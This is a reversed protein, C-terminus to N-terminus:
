LSGMKGNMKFSRHTVSVLGVAAKQHYFFMCLLVTFHTFDFPSSPLHFMFEFFSFTNILLKGALNSSFKVIGLPYRGDIRLNLALVIEIFQKENV